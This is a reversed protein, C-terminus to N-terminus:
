ARGRDALYLIPEGDEDAGCAQGIENALDYVADVEILDYIANVLARGSHSEFLRNRDADDRAKAAATILMELETRQRSWGTAAALREAARDLNFHAIEPVSALEDRISGARASLTPTAM